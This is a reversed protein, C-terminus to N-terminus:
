DFVFKLAKKSSDYEIYDIKIKDAASMLGATATTANTPFDTIESKTHTHESAAAGVTNYSITRATSGDFTTGSAAGAGGNNFTIAKNVKTASGANGSVSTQLPHVHDGRAFSSTESGVAATGNAKPTTGSAKAHGYNSATSVGYTTASSAHSTPAKGSLASNVAKNQVPNTSTSSLATDVTIAPNAPMKVTLDTGDVTGVVSTTNWALTPAANDVQLTSSVAPEIDYLKDLQVQKIKDSM